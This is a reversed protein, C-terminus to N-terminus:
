DNAAFSSALFLVGGPLAVLSAIGATIAAFGGGILWIIESSDDSNGQKLLLGVSQKLQPAILM